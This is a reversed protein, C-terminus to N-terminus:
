WPLNSEDHPAEVGLLRAEHCNLCACRAAEPEPDPTTCDCPFDPHTKGGCLECTDWDLDADVLAAYCAEPDRELEACRFYGCLATHTHPYATM